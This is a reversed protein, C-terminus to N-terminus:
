FQHKVFKNPLEPAWISPVGIKKRVGERGREGMEIESVTVYGYPSCGSVLAGLDERKQLM